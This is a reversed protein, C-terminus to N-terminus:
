STQPFTLKAPPARAMTCDDAGKGVLWILRVLIAFNASLVRFQGSMMRKSRWSWNQYGMLDTVIALVYM